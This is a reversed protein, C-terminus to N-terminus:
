KDRFAAAREFRRAIKKVEEALTKPPIKPRFNM